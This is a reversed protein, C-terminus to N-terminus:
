PGPPPAARVTLSQHRPVGAGDHGPTLPTPHLTLPTFINMYIYIYCFKYIYIYVYIM